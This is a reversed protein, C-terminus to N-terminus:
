RGPAAVASAASALKKCMDILAGQDQEVPSAELRDRQEKLMAQVDDKGLAGALMLMEVAGGPNLNTKLCARARSELLIRARRNLAELGELRPESTELARREESAIRLFEQVQGRQQPSEFSM